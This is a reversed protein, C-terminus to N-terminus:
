LVVCDTYKWHYGGASKQRGKLCTVLTSAKIDAWSAAETVSNFVTDTEICTVKKHQRKAAEKRVCKPCGGGQTRDGITAVWENGCEKCTWLIKQRSGSTFDTPQLGNNKELVWEDLLFPYLTAIDNFGYLVRRGSCYPCGTGNEKTRSGIAAQWSGGCTSCTWWVKQKSAVLYNEPPLHNREYDWEKLLDPMNSALSGKNSLKTEIGSKVRKEKSCNPCDQKQYTRYNPSMLFENGCKSCKWWYKRVSGYSVYEPNVSGNKEYDWEKLLEPFLSAISNEKKRFDYREVIRATDRDVDIDLDEKKNGLLVLLSEIARNLSQSSRDEVIICECDLLTPLGNERVRILRVGNEKCLKNKIGDNEDKQNSKHWEVGDYEVAVKENPLYVDLEFKGLWSDHFSNVVDSYHKEMYYLCAQEQFSTGKRRCIPCGTHSSTRNALTSRYSHGQKCVFWIKKNAFPAVESPLISNKEYDWEDLIYQRDNEKCWSELDNIGRVIVKGACVPCAAGNVRNGIPAQYHQNCKPCIWWVKRTSGPYIAEPNLPDNKEYDWESLLEPYLFAISKKYAATGRGIAAKVRGCRPCGAGATRNSLEAQWEEGCESCIWWVKKHSSPMIDSPKVENRGYDWESLLEPYRTAFDNFGSLRRKNSCFPCSSGEVRRRIEAQWSHGNKCKWYVKNHSGASVSDPSCITNNKEFDWEALLPLNTTQLDNIGKKIKGM